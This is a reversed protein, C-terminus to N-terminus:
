FSIRAMGEVMMAMGPIGFGPLSQGLYLSNGDRISALYRPDLANVVLQPLKRRQEATLLDRVLPGVQALM